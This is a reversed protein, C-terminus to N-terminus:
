FVEVYTDPATTIYNMEIKYGKQSDSLLANATYAACLILATDPAHRDLYFPLGMIMQKSALRYGSTDAFWNWFVTEAGSVFATPHLGEMAARDLMMALVLPASQAVAEISLEVVERNRIIAWPELDEFGVSLPALDEEEMVYRAWSVKGAADVHITQVRPLRLIGELTRIFGSVGTNRPVEMSEEVKRYDPM